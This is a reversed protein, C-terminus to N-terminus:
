ENTVKKLKIKNLEIGISYAFLQGPKWNKHCELVADIHEKTWNDYASSNMLKSELNNRVYSLHHMQLEDRKFVKVNNSLIQRTPDCLYPGFKNQGLTFYKHPHIKYIFPVYYEEPPDVIHEKDGYYTLMKCLSADHNNMYIEDKARKFEHPIYLEDCDITMHHTCHNNRAVELGHNRKNIENYHPHINKPTYNYIVNILKKEDRLMRLYPLADKDAPNGRNSIEQFIGSIFDVNDRISRLSDEILELGDFVNYSASLKYM